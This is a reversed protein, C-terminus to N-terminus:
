RPPSKIKPNRPLQLLNKKEEKPEMNEVRTEFLDTMKKVTTDAYNFGQNITKNKWTTPISPNIIDM